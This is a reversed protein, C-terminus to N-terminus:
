RKVEMKNKIMYNIYFNLFFIENKGFFLTLPLPLPTAFWIDILELKPEEKGEVNPIRCERNKM